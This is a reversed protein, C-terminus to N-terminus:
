VSEKGIRRDHRESIFSSIFFSSHRPFPQVDTVAHSSTEEGSKNSSHCVVLTRPLTEPMTRFGRPPLCSPYSSSFLPSRHYFGTNNVEKVLFKWLRELSNFKPSRCLPFVQKSRATAIRANDSHKSSSGQYKRLAERESASLQVKM